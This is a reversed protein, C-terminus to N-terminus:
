NIKECKVGKAKKEFIINTKLIFTIVIITLVAYIIYGVTRNKLVYFVSALSFLVNILYILLVTKKQSNTRSLLQHHIHCKDPKSVSEGKLKRRIIAFLTDLIPIALILLPIIVSSMMVNKFGLLTVVSIIFGLFLAGSDGMFISAPNFNFVLFGLTAGLLIFTLEYPLTLQNQILTIVGITLFFISSIGGALGDLGDILNIINMCAVIFIITVPYAFIGFNLYIGFASVDQLLIQGYFVVILAAVIQGILKYKADLPKIDDLMGTFVIIFSGILISIMSVSVTGFIMYSLLFSLYIAVGGMRPMPKKHVKRENPMDLANVHTAVKKMIPVLIVSFIFTTIVMLFTKLVSDVIM